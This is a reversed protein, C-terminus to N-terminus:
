DSPEIGLLAKVASELALFDNHEATGRAEDDECFEPGPHVFRIINVADVLFTVSTARRHGSALWASELHRWSYDFVVPGFYGYSRALHAIRDEDSSPSSTLLRPKPHFVCVTELGKEGYTHRLSEITALSTICYKCGETWWRYLYVGPTVPSELLALTQNHPFVTGLLDQGGRDVPLPNVALKANVNRPYVDISDMYIESYESTQTCQLLPLFLCATVILGSVICLFSRVRLM